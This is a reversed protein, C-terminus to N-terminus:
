DFSPTMSEKVVRTIVRMRMLEPESAVSAM